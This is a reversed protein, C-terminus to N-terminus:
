AVSGLWCRSVGVAADVFHLLVVRSYQHQTDGDYIPWFRAILCTVAYSVVVVHRQKLGLALLRHHFHSRDPSFLSRRELFRRLMSFLTDFIPIGLALIPLALGVLASSKSACMVGSFAITFGLFLSGCDGMFIKAPNFNFVLFGCLSGLLALMLVAMVAQGGHIALIAIVGCAIASIGQQLAM